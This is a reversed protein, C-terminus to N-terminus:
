LTGDIAELIKKKAYHDLYSTRYLDNVVKKIAVVGLPERQEFAEEESFMNDDWGIDEYEVTNQLTCSLMQVLNDKLEEATAGYPDCPLITCSSIEGKKDYYVEHIGYHPNDSDDRKVLVRYDWTM